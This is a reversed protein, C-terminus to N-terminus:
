NLFPLLKKLVMEKKYDFLYSINASAILYNDRVPSIASRDSLRRSFEQHGYCTPTGTKREEAYLGL